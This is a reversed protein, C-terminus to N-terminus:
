FGYEAYFKSLETSIEKFVLHHNNCGKRSCIMVVGGAKIVLPVMPAECHGCNKDSALEKNCHPCYFGVVESQPIEFSMKLENCDYISCLWVVGRDTESTINMKVAPKGNILTKEDMLSHDCLPCKVHLSVQKEM